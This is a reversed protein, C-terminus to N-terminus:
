GCAITSGRRTSTTRSGVALADIPQAAAADGDVRRRQVRRGAPLLPGHVRRAPASRGDDVAPADHRPVVAPLRRRRPQRPRAAHGLRAPRRVAPRLRQLLLRELGVGGPRRRARERRREQDRHRLGREEDPGRGHDRRDSARRSADLALHEARQRPHLLARRRSGEHGLSRRPAPGVVARVGRQEAHERRQSRQRHRVARQQPHWQRRRRVVALRQRDARRVQRDLLQGAQDPQPRAQRGLRDYSHHDDGARRGRARQGRVHRGGRRTDGVRRAVSEFYWDNGRNDANLQWNTRTTPNGGFRNLPVNLDTLEATGAHAVGYVNPDIPHRNAAADVAVTVQADAAIPWAAAAFGALAFLLRRLTTWTQTSSTQLMMATAAPVGEAQAAFMWIGHRSARGGNM